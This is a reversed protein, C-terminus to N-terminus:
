NQFPGTQLMATGECGAMDLIYNYGRDRSMPFGTASSCLKHGGPQKGATSRVIREVGSQRPRLLALLVTVWRIERRNSM